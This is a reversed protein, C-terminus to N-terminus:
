NQLYELVVYTKTWASYNAATVINVNTADVYLEIENGAVSTAYPIPIYSFAVTPKTATAYMRTFSTGTNCTIGHAVSKTATNPLSGFNVVKRIVQRPTAVQATASSLAPNPFYTQGNVSEQTYYTGTDKLNTAIAINNINQYMRVLLEKFEPSQVDIENLQAVDWIQTTPVFVGNLPQSM